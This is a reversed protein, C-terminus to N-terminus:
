DQEPGGESALDQSRRVLETLEASPSLKIVGEWPLGADRAGKIADNLLGLAADADVAFEAPAEGPRDLLQWVSGSEAFLHCRSRLDVDNRALTGAALGLAALATRAALDVEPKSNAAGDLPFRLRRLVALSLTTTQQARSITFGGRIRPRVRVEQGREDRRTEYQIQSSNNRVYDYDPTVNGHNLVSPRGQDPISKKSEPDYVVDQGKSNPKYLVPKDSAGKKADDPSLTWDGDETRYIPGASKQIAAPDIRSSTKVGAVADYGVIESVLARQFKAGLGGRPGTSDWLGFVLATPCLGFLGAANRVDATDLVRGANSERFKVGGLLSDRFLADAVRHPAELSSVAFKRPLEDQDFHAVLLPLALRNARHAELLALEMRNAQSQVSDLLVCRRMEGTKPDVRNETAYKGGEYTPPFVKDGRGGVPQYDTVCRFAAARGAVADRLSRLDLDMVDETTPDRGQGSDDRFVDKAGPPPTASMVVAHFCRGLPAVAWSRYKRVAHLTQLFPQACHAEDLFVLSDNAVLGASVPWTGSGRGYARFLLRSGIQDVTSAVITPQLPNRAWAESRHMGGRLSHVALPREVTAEATGGGALCRLRDAVTKLIGGDAGNLKEALRRARDHAEDVIIRRDVVFFIRRPATVGCAGSPETHAQAALAFVAIDICATKGAGTPLAIADPWSRPGDDGRSAHSVTTWDADRSANLVRKALALQWAFPAADAGWLEAFFERFDTHDLSAMTTGLVREM